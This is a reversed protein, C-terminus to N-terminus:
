AHLKFPFKSFSLNIRASPDSLPKPKKTQFTTPTPTPRLNLITWKPNFVPDAGDIQLM